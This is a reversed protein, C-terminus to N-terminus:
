FAKGAFGHIEGPRANGGGAARGGATKEVHALIQRMGRLNKESLAEKLAAMIVPMERLGESATAVNDITRSLNQVNRDDLLKGLRISVASIQGVIDGAKEGLTDFLTPKLAIRAPEAM